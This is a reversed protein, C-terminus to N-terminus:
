NGYSSSKVAANFDVFEINAPKTFLSEDMHADSQCTAHYEKVKSAFGDPTYTKSQSSDKVPLISGKSDGDAWLYVAEGLWLMHGPKNSIPTDVRMKKSDKIYLTSQTSKSDATTTTYDCKAGYKGAMADTLIAKVEEPTTASVTKVTAPASSSATNKVNSGRTVFTYAVAGSIAIVAVISLIIVLGSGRSNQHTSSM